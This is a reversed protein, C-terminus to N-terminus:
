KIIGGFEYDYMKFIKYLKKENIKKYLEICNKNVLVSCDLEKAFFESFHTWRDKQLKPSSIITKNDEIHANIEMDMAM